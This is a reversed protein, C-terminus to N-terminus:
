HAQATMVAKFHALEAATITSKLVIVEEQGVMWREAGLGTAQGFEMKYASKPPTASNPTVSKPNALIVFLLHNSRRSAGPLNYTIQMAGPSFAMLQMATTGEPLGKPLTVPFNMARAAKQIDQETPNRVPLWHRGAGDFAIRAAGGSPDLSIQVHGFMEAAAAVAVISLGAIAAALVGRRRRAARAAPRGQAGHRIADLPIAPVAIGARATKCSLEFNSQM